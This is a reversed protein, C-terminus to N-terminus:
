LAEDMEGQCYKNRHLQKIFAMFFFCWKIIYVSHSLVIIWINTIYGETCTTKLPYGDFEFSDSKTRGWAAFTGVCLTCHVVRPFISEYGEKICVSRRASAKQEPEYFLSIMSVCFRQFLIVLHQATKHKLILQFAVTLLDFLNTLNTGSQPKSRRTFERPKGVPYLNNQLYNRGM